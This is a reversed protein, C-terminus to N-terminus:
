KKKREAEKQDRYWKCEDSLYFALLECKNDREGASQKVSPAVQGLLNIEKKEKRPPTGVPPGPQQPSSSAALVSPMTGTRVGYHQLIVADEQGQFFKNEIFLLNELSAVPSGDQNRSRDTTTRAVETIYTRAEQQLGTFRNNLSPNRQVHIAQQRLAHGVLAAMVAPYQNRTSSLNTGQPALYYQQIQNLLAQFEPSYRQAHCPGFSLFLACFILTSGFLRHSKM